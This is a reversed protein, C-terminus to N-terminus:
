IIEKVDLLRQGVLNMLIKLINKLLDKFDLMNGNTNNYRVVGTYIISAILNADEPALKKVGTNSFSSIALTTLSKILRAPTQRRKVELPILQNDM